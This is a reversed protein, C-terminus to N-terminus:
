WHFGNSARIPTETIQYVELVRRAQEPLFLDPLPRHKWELFGLAIYQKEVTKQGYGDFLHTELNMM